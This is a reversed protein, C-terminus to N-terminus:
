LSPVAAGTEVAIGQKRLASRLVRIERTQQEIQHQQTAIMRQMQDLRKEITSDDAIAHSFLLPLAGLGSLMIRLKM